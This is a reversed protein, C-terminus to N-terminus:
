CKLVYKKLNFRDYDTKTFVIAYEASNGAEKFITSSEENFQEEFFQESIEAFIVREYALQQRKNFLAARSFIEKINKLRNRNISDKFLLLIQDNISGGFVRHM